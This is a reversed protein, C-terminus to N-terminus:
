SHGRIEREAATTKFPICARDKCQGRVQAIPRRSEFSFYSIARLKGLSVVAEKFGVLDYSIYFSVCVCLCGNFNAYRM